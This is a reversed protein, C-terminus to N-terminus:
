AAAKNTRARTERELLAKREAEAVETLTRYASALCLQWARDDQNRAKKARRECREAGARYQDIKSNM